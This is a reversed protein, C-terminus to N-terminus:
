KISKMVYMEDNWYVDKVEQWTYSVFTSILVGKFNVKYM